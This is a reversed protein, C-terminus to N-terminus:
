ICLLCCRISYPVNSAVAKAIYSSAFVYVWPSRVQVLAGGQHSALRVLFTELSPARAVTGIGKDVLVASAKATCGMGAAADAQM